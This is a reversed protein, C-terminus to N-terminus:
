SPQPTSLNRALRRSLGLGLAIAVLLYMSAKGEKLKKFDAAEYLCHIANCKSTGLIVNGRLWIM